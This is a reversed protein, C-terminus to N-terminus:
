DNLFYQSPENEFIDNMKWRNRKNGRQCITWYFVITKWFITLFFRKNLLFRENKLFTQKFFWEKPFNTLEAFIHRKRMNMQFSKFGENKQENKFFSLKRKKEVICWREHFIGNTRLFKKENLSETLPIFRLWHSFIM